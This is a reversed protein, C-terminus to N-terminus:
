MAVQLTACGGKRSHQRLAQGDQKRAVAGGTSRPKSDTLRPRDRVSQTIRGQRSAGIQWRGTYVRAVQEATLREPAINTVYLHYRGTEQNRVGVLRLRRRAGSRGGAYGRRRFAVEVEVDLVECRLRRVVDRLRRGVLPV